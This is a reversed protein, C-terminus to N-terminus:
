ENKADAMLDGLDEAVDELAAIVRSHRYDEVHEQAIGVDKAVSEVTQKLITISADVRRKARELVKANNM